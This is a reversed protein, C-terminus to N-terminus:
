KGKRERYRKLAAQKNAEPLNKITDMFLQEAETFKDGDGPKKRLIISNIGEDDPNLLASIQTSQEEVLKELAEIRKQEDTQQPQSKNKLRKEMEAAALEPGNEAMLFEPKADAIIQALIKSHESNSDKLEPYKDAIKKFSVEQKKRLDDLKSKMSLEQRDYQSEQIRRYERRALWANAKSLDELLWEELEDETMERRQERPLEKDENLYNTIREQEKKQLEASIQNKVAPVDSIRKTLEENQTKLTQLEIQLEEYAKSTKDKMLKMENLVEDIRKQSEDKIRKIKDEGSLKSEEDKRKSENIEDVRKKEEESLEEPKKTLLEADKKAKSEAELRFKEAKDKDEKRKVELKQREEASLAKEQEKQLIDKKEDVMGKLEKKADEVKIMGEM